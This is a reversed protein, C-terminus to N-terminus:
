PQEQTGSQHLGVTELIWPVAELLSAVTLDPGVPRREAYHHDIFVTHCGAAQGAEVDRWRDGVM